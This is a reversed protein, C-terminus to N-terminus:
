KNIQQYIVERGSTVFMHQGKVYVSTPSKVKIYRPKPKNDKSALLSIVRKTHDGLINDLSGPDSIFVRNGDSCATRMYSNPVGLETRLTKGNLDFTSIKRANKEAVFVIDNSVAIGTPGGLDAAFQRFNEGATTMVNVANSTFDTVYLLGNHAAVDVAWGACGACEFSRRWDGGLSYEVVSTRSTVYLSQGYVCMGCASECAFSKVLAGDWMRIQITDNLSVYLKDHAGCIGGANQELGFSRPECHRVREMCTVETEENTISAEQGDEPPCWMVTQGVVSRWKFAPLRVTTKRRKVCVRVDKGDDLDLLARKHRGRVGLHALLM